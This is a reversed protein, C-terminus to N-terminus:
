KRMKEKFEEITETKLPDVKYEQALYYSTWDALLISSFLKELLTQGTLDIIETPLGTENLIEATLDMRKQIRPHDQSDKLILCHFISQKHFDCEKEHAMGELENHNLEPFHHIFAPSNSSENFKIKWIYGLVKLKDSVYIIPIKGKLKQALEKGQNEQTAPKLNKAMELIESSRGKIKLDSNALISYLATFIYGTAMRPILGSPIEVLPTNNQQCLEKLQGGSTIAAMTLGKKIAEQYAALPEETNGSYSSFIALTKKTAQPPLQYNRNVQIPLDLWTALIEAPWASGGMGSVIVNDFKGEVKIQRALELGQEFQQPFDLIIKRM